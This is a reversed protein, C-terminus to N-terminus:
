KNLMLKLADSPQGVTEHQDTEINYDYIKNLVTKHGTPTYVGGYVEEYGSAGYIAEHVSTVKHKNLNEENHLVDITVIIYPKCVAPMKDITNESFTEITYGEISLDVVSMVGVKNMLSALPALTNLAGVLDNEHLTSEDVLSYADEVLVYDGKRSLVREVPSKKHISDEPSDLDIRDCFHFRKDDVPYDSTSFTAHALISRGVMYPILSQMLTSKGSSPGGIILVSVGSRISDTLTDSIAENITRNSILDKLQMM